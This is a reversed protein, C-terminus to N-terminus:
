KYSAKDPLRVDITLKPRAPIIGDSGYQCDDFVRRM